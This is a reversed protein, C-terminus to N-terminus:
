ARVEESPIQVPTDLTQKPVRIVGEIDTEVVAEAPYIAAAGSPNHFVYYRTNKGTRLEMDTYVVVRENTLLAVKLESPEVAFAEQTERESM